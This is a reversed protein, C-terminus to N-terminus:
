FLEAPDAARLKRASLWASVVSIVTVGALVGLARPATMFMPMHAAERTIAYMGFALPLGIAYGIGGLALAQQLVIASLRADDYGMAKLTAYEPLRTMVDAALIQYLIVLATVMAVVAGTLFMFEISAHEHWFSQELAELEPLSLVRVDQPLRARLAAALQAPSVGPAARLVILSPRELSRGPFIQRFTRESTILTGAGLFGPGPDYQGVIEVRHGEVEAEHGPDVTRLVPQCGRSTIVHDIHHLRPLQAVVEPDSFAQRTPECGVVIMVERNGSVSSRWRGLGLYVPAALAVEPCAQAQELRRRSVTASETTLVYSPSVLVADFRMTAYIATAVEISTTYFGLQVLVLLTCVGVGAGAVATRIKATTLNRWVLPTNM